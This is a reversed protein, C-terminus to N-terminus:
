LTAVLEALQDAAKGWGEHFGMKEHAERDEVSWHRIVARYRTKAGMPEFTITAVMFAKGSPAWAEVFADTFVLRRNEVVELYVGLNPYEQGDPGVMVIVGKGGPRVDLQASSVGWPRPCYWQKLLEPETWARFLRDPSADMVREFTLERDAQPTASPQNM